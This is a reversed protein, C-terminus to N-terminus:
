EHHSGELAALVEAAVEPVSKGDTNVTVTAVAEYIPLREDLLAKIRARINGLLLPRGTGMGVRKVADSLGVNLFVVRHGELLSRTAPDLVAGGGLALVGDHERLASAVALAELSRFAAEGEDVFIDSIPKGATVEVDRDTDRVAVGWEDALLQAVTTKGAGM